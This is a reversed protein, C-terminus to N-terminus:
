LGAVQFGERPVRKLLADAEKVNHVTLNDADWQLKQGPFRNAVVGLLLAETLPGAYSFPSSTKGKGMCADVWQHYHNRSDLEPRKEEKFKEEPFLLPESSHPLLMTGEEGVFLAGQGPLKL